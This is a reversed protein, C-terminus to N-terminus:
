RPVLWTGAVYDHPARAARRLCCVAGALSLAACFLIVAFGGRQARHQEPSAFAATGLVAGTQTLQQEEKILASISLGFDGVKVTGDARGRAGCEM